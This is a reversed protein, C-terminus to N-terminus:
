GVRGHWHENKAHRIAAGIVNISEALTACDIRVTDTNGAIGFRLLMRDTLKSWARDKIRLRLYPGYLLGVSGGLLSGGGGGGDLRLVLFIFALLSSAMRTSAADSDAPLPPDIAYIDAWDIEERTLGAISLGNSSVRVAFKKFRLMSLERLAFYGMFVAFGGAVLIMAIYEGQYPFLLIGTIFIWFVAFTGWLALRWALRKRDPRVELLVM